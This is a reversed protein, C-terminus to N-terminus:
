DIRTVRFRGGLHRRNYEEADDVTQFGGDHNGYATNSGPITLYIGRRDKFGDREPTDIWVGRVIKPTETPEEDDEYVFGVETNFTEVIKRFDRLDPM